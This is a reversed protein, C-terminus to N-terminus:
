KVLTMKSTQMFDGARIRYIYVGSALDSADFTVQHTGPLRVENVLTAIRRGTVTYVGLEVQSEMPLTFRIQTTPNFPNPYAGLEFESPLGPAYDISTAHYYTTDGELVGNIYSGKLYNEHCGAYACGHASLGVDHVFRFYDGITYADDGIFKTPVTPQFTELNETGSDLFVFNQSSDDQAIISRVRHYVHPPSIINSVLWMHGVQQGFDAVLDVRNTDPDIDTRPWYIKNDEFCWTFERRNQRNGTSLEFVSCSVGDVEIKDILEKRTKVCRNEQICPTWNEEYVWVNGIQRPFNFIPTEEDEVSPMSQANVQGVLMMLAASLLLIAQMYLKM